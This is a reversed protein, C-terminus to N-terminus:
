VLAAPLDRIQLVHVDILCVLCVLQFVLLDGRNDCHGSMALSHGLTRKAGIVCGCPSMYVEGLKIGLSLRAGRAGVLCGVMDSRMVARKFSNLNFLM